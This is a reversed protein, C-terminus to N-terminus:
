IQKLGSPITHFMHHLDIEFSTKEFPSIQLKVLILCHFNTILLVGCGATAYTVVDWKFSVSVKNCVQWRKRRIIERNWRSLFRIPTEWKRHPIHAMFPPLPSPSTDTTGARAWARWEAWNAVPFHVLRPGLLPFVSLNWEVQHSVKRYISMQRRDWKSTGKGGRQLSYDLM